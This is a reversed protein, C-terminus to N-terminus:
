EDGSHGFQQLVIGNVAAQQLGDGPVALAPSAEKTTRCKEITPFDRDVFLSNGKEIYKGKGVNAIYVILTITIFRTM